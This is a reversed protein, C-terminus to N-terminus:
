SVSQDRLAKDVAAFLLDRRNGLTADVEGSGTVVLCGGASISNDEVLEVERRGEGPLLAGDEKGNNLREIDERNLKITVTANEVVYELANNLVERIVTKDSEIKQQVLREVMVKILELLESEYEGVLKKRAESLDDILGATSEIKRAYEDRGQRRGEEQGSAFGEEYAKKKLEEKEAQIEERAKRLVEEAASPRNGEAQGRNGPGGGGKDVLGQSETISDGGALKDYSVFDESEGLDRYRKNIEIPDSM